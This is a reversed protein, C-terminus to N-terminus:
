VQPVANQGTIQRSPIQSSAEQIAQTILAEHDATTLTRGIVLSIVNKLLPYIAAEVKKLEQQRYAEVSQEAKAYEQEIRDQMITHVDVTEDKLLKTFNQMEKTVTEEAENSIKEFARVDQERLRDLAQQYNKSFQDNLTDTTKKQLAILEDLKNKVLLQVDAKNVGAESLIKAAEKNAEQLIQINQKRTDELIQVAKQNVSDHLHIKEEDAQEVKRLLHNFTTIIFVIVLSLGFVSAILLLFIAPNILM